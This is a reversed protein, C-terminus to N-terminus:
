TSASLTRSIIWIVNDILNVQFTFLQVEVDDKVKNRLVNILKLTLGFTPFGLDMLSCSIWSTQLSFALIQSQLYKSNDVVNM